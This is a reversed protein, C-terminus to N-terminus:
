KKARLKEQEKRGKNLLYTHIKKKRTFSIKVSILGEKSPTNCKVLKFDPQAQCSDILKESVETLKLTYTFDVAVM